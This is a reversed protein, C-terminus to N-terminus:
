KIGSFFTKLFITWKEKHETRDGENYPLTLEKVGYGDELFGNKVKFNYSIKPRDSEKKLPESVPELKKDFDDFKVNIIKTKPFSIMNKKFM